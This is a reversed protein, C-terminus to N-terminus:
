FPIGMKLLNGIRSLILGERVTNGERNNKDLAAYVPPLANEVPPKSKSGSTGVPWVTDYAGDSPGPEELEHSDGPVPDINASFYCLELQVRHVFKQFLISKICICHSCHYSYEKHRKHLMILRTRLIWGKNLRRITSYESKLSRKGGQITLGQFRTLLIAEGSLNALMTIKLRKRCM